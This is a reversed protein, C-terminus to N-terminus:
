SHGGRIQIQQIWIRDLFALCVVHLPHTAILAEVVFSTDLAIPDAQM